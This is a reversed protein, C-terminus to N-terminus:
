SGADAQGLWLRRTVPQEPTESSLQFSSQPARVARWWATESSPCWAEGAEWRVPFPVEPAELGGRASGPAEWGGHGRPCNRIILTKHTYGTERLLAFWYLRSGAGWWSVSSPCGVSLPLPGRGLCASPLTLGPLPLHRWGGM